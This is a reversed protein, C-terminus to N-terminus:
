DVPFEGDANAVNVYRSSSRPMISSEEDSADLDVARPRLATTKGASPVRLARVATAKQRGADRWDNLLANLEGPSTGSTRHRTSWTSVRRRTLGTESTTLARNLQVRGDEAGDLDSEIEVEEDDFDPVKRTKHAITGSRRDRRSARSEFDDDREVRIRVAKISHNSVDFDRRPEPQGPNGVDSKLLDDDGVTTMMTEAAAIRAMNARGVRLKVMRTRGRLAAQMQIFHGSKRAEELAKREQEKRYQKTAGSHTALGDTRRLRKPPLRAIGDETKGSSKYLSGRRPNVGDLDPYTCVNEDDVEVGPARLMIASPAIYGSCPPWDEYDARLLHGEESVADFPSAFNPAVSSNRGVSHSENAGVLAPDVTDALPEEDILRPDITARNASGEEIYRLSVQHAGLDGVALVYQQSLTSSDLKAREAEEQRWLLRSNNAPAAVTEKLFNLNSVSFDVLSEVSRADAVKRTDHGLLTGKPKYPNQRPDKRCAGAFCVGECHPCRWTNDAMVDQPMQDYGRFLTGYCWHRGCQCTAMKWKEHRHCCVHCTHHAKLWAESRKKRKRKLTGDENVQIDENDSHWGEVAKAKHVDIWPRQKLQEQCVQALPKKQLNCREVQLPLHSDPRKSGSDLDLCQRRWMEYKQVLEKWKFQEAWKLKSICGCSRGMAYCDMCIDYPDPDNTALMDECTKCTLFRNFINGRCYACTVNSDFPLYEVNKENPEGPSFMESLLIKKYIGFLRKFDKQLQRIKPNTRLIEADRPSPATQQQDRIKTLLVSYKQLSYFVIAKNKYQEDRCVLRANPLAEDFAIELTEVTTRNWAVKMSRTGRNWVQHPAMPPILIFDGAKQEVVYTIFPARKWAAIQAFHKEVEIDHGLISLWYESVTRRDKSETMFWVSSGPREPKGDDGLVDSVDVMINHGISACMERHAPTYTGEHGIYCMLNQARMTAPLCSMLDGAGAIGRGKRKGGTSAVEDVSGPGGLEGCSENLYFVNPPLAERLKDHWVDPCDIDKLYVRQRNMDKYAHPNEHYQETLKSM